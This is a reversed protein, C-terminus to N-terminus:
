QRKILAVWDKDPEAPPHGISRARLGIISDVSGRQLGGGTRPNYWRMTYVGEEVRLETTGGQPLQVAYISGKKALVRAASGGVALSSAPEMEWFPLYRHFFELAYRTQDWMRDRSRWDECNLDM